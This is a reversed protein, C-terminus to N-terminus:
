IRIRAPMLRKGRPLSALWAVTPPSLKRVNDGALAAASLHKANVHFSFSTMARYSAPVLITVEARECKAPELETEAPATTEPAHSGMSAGNTRQADCQDLVVHRAKLTYKRTGEDLVVRVKGDSHGVVVGCKGNFREKSLGALSVRSGVAPLAQPSTRKKEPTARKSAGRDGDPRLKKNSAALESETVTVLNETKLSYEKTSGDLVVRVKGDSLHGVVLGCEGNFREKSLGALLVRTGVAPVTPTGSSAGAAGDDVVLEIPQMTCDDAGVLKLKQLSSATYHHSEGTDFTVHFHKGRPDDLDLALLRGFGRL